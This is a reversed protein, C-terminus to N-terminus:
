EKTTVKTALTFRGPERGALLALALTVMQIPLIELIPAISGPGKPLACPAFTADEGIWEARGGGERVDQLLGRNLGRTRTDGAFILAVIEKGLIEFPGHRFAASSMGEAHFHASEKIILAGCQAAAVSAGRGLLFLDRVGELLEMFGGVHQEWGGLYEGILPEASELERRSQRLDRECLVDGLWRLAALAAVYTKCTVSHEKGARTLIAADSRSALPSDPTNTIALVPATGSNDDLLRIVEASRGSQSVAVILAEASMLKKEYHILESTEVTIALYGHEILELQLPRLGFFSSGMGTLILVRFEGHHARAFIRRLEDTVDLGAVTERVARPQDLIDGLYEGEAGSLDHRM